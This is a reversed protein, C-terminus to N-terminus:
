AKTLESDLGQCTLQLNRLHKWIARMLPLLLEIRLLITIDAKRKVRFGSAGVDHFGSLCRSDWRFVM